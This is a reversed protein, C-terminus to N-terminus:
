FKYDLQVEFSRPADLMFYYSGIFGFNGLPIDNPANSIVEDTLNKGLLAISWGDLSALAIRANVKTFASQLNAPDNDNVGFYDDMYQLDITAKIDYGGVFEKQYSLALNGSYKPSFMTPQGALNQRCAGEGQWQLSQPATCAAGDYSNYESDLYAFGYDLRFEKSLIVQGDVEIGQTTTEAANDTVFTAVGDFVSVQVDKFNNHFLALNLHARNEWLSTKIGLEFSTVTEDEFEQASKVGVRNSADFGGAKYGNGVKAYSTTDSSFDYQVIFDGTWHEESRNNDYNTDLSCTRSPTPTLVNSCVEFGEAGFYHEKSLGSSELFAQHPLSFTPRSYPAFVNESFSGAYVFKEFTKDDNSYRLGTIVRLNDTIHYTMQTFASLTKTDQKFEQASTTDGLGAQFALLQPHNEPLQMSVVPLLTSLMTELTESTHLSEDQYFLGSLFELNDGVDFSVLFEQTFQKHQEAGQRGILPLPGFDVDLSNEFNAETSATISRVNVNGIDWDGTLAFVKWDADDFETPRGPLGRAYKDYNIGSEFNPDGLNQYIFDANTTTIGITNQRGNNKTEGSEVKLRFSLDDTALWDLTLRGITDTEQREDINLTHNTMYGDTEERKLAVRAQINDTLGGSLVATAGWGGFEPEATLTVYGEFEETPDATSINLAGAITNKGFLTSQPGKLVEVRKVDMLAARSARGRGVYVGDIFTGVSQEFGANGISGIGRIYVGDDGSTETINLNPIFTSIESLSGIGQEQMKDGNMVAIAIPVEQYSSSRKTATVMIKEIELAENDLKEEEAYANSSLATLLALTIYNLRTLKNKPSSNNHKM